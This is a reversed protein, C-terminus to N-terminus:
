SKGNCSVVSWQCSVVLMLNRHVAEECTRYGNEADRRKTRSVSGLFDRRDLADGFIAEGVACAHQKEGFRRPRRNGDVHGDEDARPVLAVALGAHGVQEFMEDELPRRRKGVHGFGQAIVAGIEVAGGVDIAGVIELGHRGGVLVEFEADLDFDSRSTWLKM